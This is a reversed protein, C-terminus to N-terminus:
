TIEEVPLVFAKIGEKGLKQRLVRIQEILKDKKGKEVVVALVSNVGPWVNTGLHPGSTKGCGTAREWRTYGEIGIHKLIQMVEEDIAINYMIFVMKMGDHM